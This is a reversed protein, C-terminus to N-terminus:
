FRIVRCIIWHIGFVIDINVVPLRTSRMKKEMNRESERERKKETQRRTPKTYAHLCYCKMFCSCGSPQHRKAINHIRSFLMRNNNSDGCSCRIIFVFQTCVASHVKCDLISIIRMRKYYRRSAVEFDNVFEIGFGFIFAYFCCTFTMYRDYLKCWIGDGCCQVSEDACYSNENRM